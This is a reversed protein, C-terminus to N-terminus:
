IKITEHLTRLIYKRRNTFIIKCGGSVCYSPLVLIYHKSSGNQEFFIYVKQSAGFLILIKVFQNHVFYKLSILLLFTSNLLDTSADHFGSM